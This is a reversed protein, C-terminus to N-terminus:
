TVGSPLSDLWQRADVARILTRRGAKRIKLRGEKIEEYALGRKVGFAKCFEDMSFAAKGAVLGLPTEIDPAM